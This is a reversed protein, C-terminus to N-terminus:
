SDYSDYLYNNLSFSFDDDKKRHELILAYMSISLDKLQLCSIINILSSCDDDDIGKLCYQKAYPM